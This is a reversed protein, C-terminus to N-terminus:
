DGFLQKITKGLELDEEFAIDPEVGQRFFGAWRPYNDRAYLTLGDGSIGHKTAAEM